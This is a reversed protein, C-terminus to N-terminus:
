CCWGRCAAACAASSVCEAREATAARKVQKPMLVINKVAFVSPDLLPGAGRLRSGELRGVSRQRVGAADLM